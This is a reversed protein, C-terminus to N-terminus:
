VELLKVNPFKRLEELGPKIIAEYIGFKNALGSGLKSIMFTYDQHTNIMTILREMELKFIFPYNELTYFSDDENDPFKKTIFGYSQRHYRLSAAGATGRHITNDGFVFIWNPNNDLDEKTIYKNLEKWVKIMINGHCPEPVCFCGLVDNEELALFRQKFASSSKLRDRLYQEYCPLTSGRDIHTGSCLMCEENIRIPNGWFGDMGHGARGIYVTFKEKGKLNVVRMSLSEPTYLRIHIVL